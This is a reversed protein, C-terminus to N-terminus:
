NFPKLFAILTNGSDPNTHRHRCTHTTHTDAHTHTHPADEDSCLYTRLSSVARLPCSATTNQFSHRLQFASPADCSISRAHRPAGRRCFCPVSRNLLLSPSSSSSPPVCLLFNLVSLFASHIDVFPVSVSCACPAPLGCFSSHLSVLLFITDAPFVITM